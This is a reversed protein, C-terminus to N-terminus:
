WRDISQDGEAPYRRQAVASPQQKRHSTLLKIMVPVVSVVVAGVLIADIHKQIHDRVFAIKGLYYGLTTVGAGWLVGGLVSYAAYTAFRMRSAGAMITAFTRVVPVFRALVVTYPGYKGFFTHAREVYERKFLRSEPRDFIVPGAKYGVWYGVVNGVIAAAPVLVALVWLPVSIVKQSVLLGATFLLSDGPLFFGILLGCEAFIILLLGVLGFTEVLYNPDLFAPAAISHM